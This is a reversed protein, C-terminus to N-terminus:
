EVLETSLGLLFLTQEGANTNKFGRTAGDCYVAGLYGSSGAGMDAGEMLVAASQMVDLKQAGGTLMAGMVITGQAPVFTAAAAIVETVKYESFQGESVRLPYTLLVRGKLVRFFPHQRLVNAEIGLDSALEELLSESLVGDLLESM